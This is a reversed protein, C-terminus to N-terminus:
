ILNVLYMVGSILFNGVSSVMPAIIVELIGFIWLIIFVVYLTYYNVDLWERFKYPIVNRFIKEGDLPPLPILNFLGLGVNMYTFLTLFIMFISVLNNADAGIRDLIAIVFASIVALIFNALPGALAVMTECFSVSKNSNFNSPNIQVPKGWGIHAFMMLIFGMFDLHKIPNLSLRGQSRPTTDGSRDAVNAQAFEHFTISLLVALLTLLLSIWASRDMSALTWIALIALLGYIINKNLGGYGTNFFM